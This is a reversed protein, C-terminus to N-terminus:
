NEDQKSDTPLPPTTDEIEKQTWDVLEKTKLNEIVGLVAAEIVDDDVENVKLLPSGNQVTLTQMPETKYFVGWNREKLVHILIDVMSMMIKRRKQQSEKAQQIQAQARFADIKKLFKDGSTTIYVTELETKIENKYSQYKKM